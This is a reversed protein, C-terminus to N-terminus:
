REIRNTIDREMTGTPMGPFLTLIQCSPTKFLPLIDLPGRPITVGGLLMLALVSVGILYPNRLAFRVM